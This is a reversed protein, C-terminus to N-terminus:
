KYNFLKKKINKNCSKSFRLFLLPTVLLVIYLVIYIYHERISNNLIINIINTNHIMGYVLLLSFIFLMIHWLTHNYNYEIENQSCKSFIDYFVLKILYFLLSLEVIILYNCKLVGVYVSVMILMFICFIDLLYYRTTNIIFYDNISSGIAVMIFSLGWLYENIGLLLLGPVGLLFSSLLVMISKKANSNYKTTVINKIITHIKELFM